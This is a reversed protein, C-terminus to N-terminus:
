VDARILAAHSSRHRRRLRMLPPLLFVLEFGLGCILRTTVDDCGEFPTGDLTEGTVCAEADGFAIGSDQTRYHSLLDTLGDGNVDELHSGKVHDPAAGEPGFALTTVDVDAVDFTDSGLIAVPIVGRSMPNITNVDSRPMIDIDPDPIMEFRTITGSVAHLVWATLAGGRPGVFTEETVYDMHWGQDSFEELAPVVEPLLNTDFLDGSGSLGISLNEWHVSRPIGTGNMQGFIIGMGDRRTGVADDWMVIFHTTGITGVYPGLEFNMHTVADRYERSDPSGPRPLGPTTTDYSFTGQLVAGSFLPSPLLEYWPNIRFATISDSDVTGEFRVTVNAAFSISPACILTCLLSCTACERVLLRCKVLMRIGM